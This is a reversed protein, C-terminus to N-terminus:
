TGPIDISETCELGGALMMPGGLRREQLHARAARTATVEPTFYGFDCRICIAGPNQLNGNIGRSVATSGSRLM